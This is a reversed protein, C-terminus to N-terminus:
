GILTYKKNHHDFFYIGFDRYGLTNKGYYHEVIREIIKSHPM